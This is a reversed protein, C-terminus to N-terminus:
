INDEENIMNRISQMNIDSTAIQNACERLEEAIIEPNKINKKYKMEHELSSWFDMAITRIQVEVYVKKITGALDLSLEFIIHYSRYGNEKPNKIYDKEKVVRLDSYRKLMDAVKYVDDIYPCIIRIGAADYVKNLANYLTVDLNKRKLKDKMSKESKIRSTIYEIPDQEGNIIKYKRIIELKSTINTIAGELLILSDKYFSGEM